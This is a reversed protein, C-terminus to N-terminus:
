PSTAMTINDHHHQNQEKQTTAMTIERGKRRETLHCHENVLKKGNLNPLPLHKWEQELLYFSAFSCKWGVNHYSQPSTAHKLLVGHSTNIPTRYIFVPIVMTNNSELLQVMFRRKNSQQFHGHKILHTHM